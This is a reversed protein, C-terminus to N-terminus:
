KPQTTSERAPEKPLESWKRAGLWYGVAFWLILAILIRGYLRGRQHPFHWGYEDYWWWLTTLLFVPMGYGLIGSYFIYHKRGKARITQLRETRKPSFPM